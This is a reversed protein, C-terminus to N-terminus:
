QTSACGKRGPHRQRVFADLADRPPVVGLAHNSRSHRGLLDFCGLPHRPEGALGPENAVRGPEALIKRKGNLIQELRLGIALFNKQVQNGRGLINAAAVAM